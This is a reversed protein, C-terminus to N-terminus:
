KKPMYMLKNIDGRFEYLVVFVWKNKPNKLIRSVQELQKEHKLCQNTKSHHFRSLYSGSVISFAEDEPIDYLLGLMNSVITGSRGKGGKCHIAIRNGQSMLWLTKQATRLSLEDSLIKDNPIPVWMYTIGEIKKIKFVSLVKGQPTVFKPGRGEITPSIYRDFYNPEERAEDITLLIIFCNIGAKILSSYEDFTPKRTILLREPIIWNSGLTPNKHYWIPKQLQFALLQRVEMLLKGLMNNGSPLIDWPSKKRWNMECIEGNGWFSDKDQYVIDQQVKILEYGIETGNFKHYLARSVMEIQRRELEPILAEPYKTSLDIFLEYIADVSMQSNFLNFYDSEPVFSFKTYFHVVSNYLVGDIIMPQFFFNSFKHNITFKFM